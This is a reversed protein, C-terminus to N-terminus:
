NIFNNGFQVQRRCHQQLFLNRYGQIYSLFSQDKSDESLYLIFPLSCSHLCIERGTARQVRADLYVYKTGQSREM